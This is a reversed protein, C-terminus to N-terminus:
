QRKDLAQAVEAASFRYAKFQANALFALKNGNAFAHYFCADHGIKNGHITALTPFGAFRRVEAVVSPGRDWLVQMVDIERDTFQIDM